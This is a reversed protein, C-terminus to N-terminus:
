VEAMSGVAGYVELLPLMQQGHVCVSFMCVADSDHVPRVIISISNGM